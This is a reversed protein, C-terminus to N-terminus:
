RFRSAAEIVIPGRLRMGIRQGDQVVTGQIQMQGRLTNKLDIGASLSRYSEGNGGM